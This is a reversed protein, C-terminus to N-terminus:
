HSGRISLRASWAVDSGQLTDKDDAGGLVVIPIGSVTSLLRNLTDLGRSDPLFLNIFIAWVDERAAIELGSSLTRVWEFTPHDGQSILAEEFARAHCPEDDILLLSHNTGGMTRVKGMSLM